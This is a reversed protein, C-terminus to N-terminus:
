REKDEDDVYYENEQNKQSEHLERLEQAQLTNEIKKKEYYIKGKENVMFGSTKLDDIFKNDKLKDTKNQDRLDNYTRNNSM